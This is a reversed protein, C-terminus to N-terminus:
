PESCECKNTGKTKAFSVLQADFNGSRHSRWKELLSYGSVLVSVCVCYAVSWSCLVRQVSSVVCLAARLEVFCEVRLVAAWCMICFVASPVRYPM